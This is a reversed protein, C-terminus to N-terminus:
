YVARETFYCTLGKSTRVCSLSATSYCVGGKPTLRATLLIMIMRGRRMEKTLIYISSSREEFVM